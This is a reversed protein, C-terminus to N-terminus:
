SRTLLSSPSILPLLLDLHHMKSILSSNWCVQLFELGTKFLYFLTPPYNFIWHLDVSKGSSVTGKGLEDFLVLSRSTYNRIATAVQNLDIMFASQIRGVSERTQVRTFIKDTLGITASEAPVYSGVHALFTILATQKLYISKGSYNAGTLLIGKGNVGNQNLRDNPRLKTDNPIFVDVCLEQLPHRGGRIEIMDEETVVPRKYNYKRASTALSLICDLEGIIESVEM